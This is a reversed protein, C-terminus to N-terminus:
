PKSDMALFCTSHTDFTGFTGLTVNTRAGTWILADHDASHTGLQAILVSRLRACDRDAAAEAALSGFMGQDNVQYYIREVVGARAHYVVEGEVEFTHDGLTFRPYEAPRTFGERKSAYNDRKPDRTMGMIDSVKMGLRVEAYGAAADVVNAPAPPQEPTSTQVTAPPTCALLLFTLMHAGIPTNTVFAAKLQLLAGGPPDSTSMCCRSRLLGPPQPM